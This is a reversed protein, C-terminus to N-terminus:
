GGAGRFRNLLNATIRQVRRTPAKRAPGTPRPASTAPRHASGTPGGSPPRTSSSTTRRAPTSRPRTPARRRASDEGAGPGRGGPRPDQGPRRAVGLRGPGSHRRREEHGHGRLDLAERKRCIWDGGGTYPIAHQAGRDPDGREPGNKAAAGEPFGNELESRRRRGSGASGASSGTPCRRDDSPLFAIVGICTNGQLLGRERGRRDGGQRQQFMELSWYEDHGVSLWGKARCCARADAHTDLNSIYSVDYGQQRWGTPWRFSGSCSSARAWRCRRTSSRAISATPGTSASTARGPGLVVGEQRRRLAVVPQALPQLGELHHRQM